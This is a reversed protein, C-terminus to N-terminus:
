GFRAYAALATVPHGSIRFPQVWSAFGIGHGNGSEERGFAQSRAVAGGADRHLLGEGNSSIEADELAFVASVEPRELQALGAPNWSGASADDAIATFAGAMALARAGSGIGTNFSASAGLTN